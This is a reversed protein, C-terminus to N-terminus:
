ALEEKPRTPRWQLLLLALLQFGGLSWQVSGQSLFLGAVMCLVILWGLVGRAPGSIFAWVLLLPSMALIMPNAAAAWHDTGWWLTLMTLGLLGSLSAWVVGPLHSRWLMAMIAAGVVAFAAIWFAWPSSYPLGESVVTTSEVLPGPTGELGPLGELSHQLHDPLYAMAWQSIPKDVPKGLGLNAGVHMWPLAASYQSLSSRYTQETSGEPFAAKLAGRTAINLADRVKTSCNQRFYDYQYSANEERRHEELHFLLRQKQSASLNLTQVSVRRGDQIYRAIDQDPDFAQMRYTMLGRVFNWLFNPQEFDFLGFNYIAQFPGAPDQLLLANHGFAQWSFPGPGVTVLSVKLQGPDLTQSTGPTSLCLALIVPM